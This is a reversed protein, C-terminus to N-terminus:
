HLETVYSVNWGVYLLILTIIVTSYLTGAYLRTFIYINRCM